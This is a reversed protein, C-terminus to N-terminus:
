VIEMRLPERTVFQEPKTDKRVRAVTIEIALMDMENALADLREAIRRHQFMMVDFERRVMARRIAMEELTMLQEGFVQGSMQDIGKGDGDHRIHGPRLRGCLDGGVRCVVPDRDKIKNTTEYM